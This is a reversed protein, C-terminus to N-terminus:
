AILIPVHRASALIAPREAATGRALVILREGFGELADIVSGPDGSRITRITIQDRTLGAAGASRELAETVGAADPTVLLLLRERAALAIRLALDPVDESGNGIVTAVPGGRRVIQAPLLLVHAESELAARWARQFSGVAREIGREPTGLVLIDRARSLAAICAAPDGRVVEFSSAVGIRTCHANFSRRVRRAAEHFEAALRETKMATWQHAPLRLERAFSLGALGLVAEDEVFVGLLDLGLLRALEAGAEISNQDAAVNCLDLLVRQSPSAPERM